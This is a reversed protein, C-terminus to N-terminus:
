PPAAFVDVRVRRWPNPHPVLRGIRASVRWGQDMAAAVAANDSRPLYGLQVQRWNVRVANADHRNDPERTLTLADGEALEEWVIKGAHYQFGALPVQQVRILVMGGGEAFGPGAVCSFAAVLWRARHGLFLMGWAFRRWFGAKCGIVFTEGAM